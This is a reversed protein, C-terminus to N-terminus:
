GGHKAGVAQQNPQGVQHHEFQLQREALRLLPKVECFDLHKEQEFKVAAAGAGIEAAIANLSTQWHQMVDQWTPFTQSQLVYHSKDEGLIQVGKLLDESSVGAYGAKDFLVKAFVVAAVHEQQLVMAAYFPLQPERIRTSAWSKFDIDRGTKYDMLILAGGDSLQDIRDMKVRILLNQLSLVREQEVALVTFDHSRKAEVECLWYEVLKVMRQQELQIFSDSYSGARQESFKTLVRLAINDLVDRLAQNGESTILSKLYDSDRGQWFYELVQHVLEGRQIADLGNVPERLRSAFLRYQYFGWAPCIAQAKLLGTGGRVESDRAIAPAQADDLWQWYQMRQEDSMQKVWQTALSHSEVLRLQEPSQATLHELLPSARLQKDGDQKAYSFILKSAAHLLRQQVLKAFESQVKSDANPTQMQQQLYAPILPNPRALSPWLHDNMGMVWIADLPSAPIELMGLVQLRIKAPAEAQFIDQRCMQMLRSLASSASLKDLVSDLEAFTQLQQLFKQQAQYEHSSLARGQAWAVAELLSKFVETWASPLQHARAVPQWLAKLHQQLNAIHQTDLKAKPQEILSQLYRLVSEPQVALALEDRMCAEFQARADMISVDSFYPNHLLDSVDTQSLKRQHIHASLIQLASAVIPMSALSVGLSIDYPRDSEVADLRLTHPILNEDLLCILKERLVNLEPVVIAIQSDASHQLQQKAWAVALRCEHAQDQAVVCIEEAAQQHGLTMESVSVGRASLIQILKILHPSKRDFGALQIHSALTGAGQSLLNLVTAQYRVSELVQKDKCLRQFIDCWKKFARSEPTEHEQTLSINWEIVFRNAEIASQALGSVDFLAKRDDAKLYEDIAQEWLITEQLASLERLSSESESLRGGLLAQEFIEGWWSALTQIHPPHWIREGLQLSKAQEIQRLARALRPSSCLILISHAAQKM